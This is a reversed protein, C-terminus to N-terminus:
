KKPKYFTRQELSPIRPTFEGENVGKLAKDIMNLRADLNDIATLVEAERTLPLVPSGYEHAGHHSLIMHQLLVTVESSINLKTCTESIRASMISIHGLLKGQMTYHPLIPGSLEALKGLDHLIIGAYLYNTDISPYVASIAKACDLMGVTHHILGSAYEHHNRSAAPYVSIQMFDKKVITEVVQKIEPHTISNVYGLLKRQLLERPEPASAVFDSIEIDASNVESGSIIKLQLVGRYEIVDAKVDIINGAVFLESDGEVLEWKRGEITGSADQFSVNLYAGGNTTVGKTAQSVLLNMQIRTNEKLDKIM